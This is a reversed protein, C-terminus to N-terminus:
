LAVIARFQENSIGHATACPMGVNSLYLSWPLAKGDFRHLDTRRSQIIRRDLRASKGDPQYIRYEYGNATGYEYKM